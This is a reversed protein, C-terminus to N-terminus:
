AVGDVHGRWCGGGPFDRLHGDGNSGMRPIWWQVSCIPDELLVGSHGCPLRGELLCAPSSGPGGLPYDWITALCYVDM